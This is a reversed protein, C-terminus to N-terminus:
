LCCRECVVRRAFLDTLVFVGGVKGCRTKWRTPVQDPPLEDLSGYRRQGEGPVHILEDDHKVILVYTVGDDSM